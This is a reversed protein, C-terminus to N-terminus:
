PLHFWNYESLFVPRSLAIESITVVAVVAAVWPWPPDQGSRGPLRAVALRLGRLYLILFPVLCAAILRGQVFYPRSASPNSTETFEYMLSLGGLLAVGTALMLLAAGEALREAGPRDRRRLNWAALAVFAVSTVQYFLDAPRWGLTRRYWALEGRWFTPILDSVFVFFGSPTFIPHSWWLAFPKPEWGLRQIKLATATPDGFLLQNRLLWVGLPGLALAILLGVRLWGARGRLAPARLALAACLGLVPLTAVNTLKALCAVGAAAGAAAWAAVGGEPRVALRLALFFALAGLLPSLVDRTVYYLCDQPFVTLLVPVGWRFFVDGPALSRLFHHSLWVLLFGAIAGLARVWYLLPGGDLGLARGLDLWAGAVAYYVPPQSFEKNARRGLFAHAREITAMLAASPRRWPPPPTEAARAPDLLYEPSGLMALLDGTEAEYADDGPRPLYGRAYKLVMDVHKQEDVNTYFPFAASYLLIRLGAAAALLLIWANEHGNEGRPM